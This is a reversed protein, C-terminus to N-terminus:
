SLLGGGMSIRGEGDSTLLEEDVLIDWVPVGLAAAIKDATLYRSSRVRPGEGGFPGRGAQNMRRTLDRWKWSKQDLLYRVKRRSIVYHM